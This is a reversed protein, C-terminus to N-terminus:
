GPDFRELSRHSRDRCSDYIAIRRGPAVSALTSGTSWDYHIFRIECGDMEVVSAQWPEDNALARATLVAVGEYPDRSEHFLSAVEPPVSLAAWSAITPDPGSDLEADDLFSNYVAAVPESEDPAVTETVVYELKSRDGTSRLNWLGIRHICGNVALAYIPEELPFPLPRM